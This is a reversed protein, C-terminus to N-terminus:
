TVGDLQRRAHEIARAVEVRSSVGLKQFIHRMHSEVTKGSLFLEAAIERNTKRDTALTAIEFERKTLSALGSDGDSVSGRTEARAGLRRLERRTEDRVRLSGCEDLEREARRLVAIADQRDGAAALARGQLNRSLAVHLQAGIAEAAEVSKAAKAAALGAHGGALLVAARARSALAAPLQLGLQAADEEARLAYAAAAESNGVALEVATLSEWDFCREVPMTRAVEEGALELLIGRGREVDGAEFWAVGLGWGPGGGGNPITGGALRRDVRLSEEFAAIAGDLDGSFYLTWGLEFLARYLEHPSASLRAAELAAECCELGEGLRGTMELAYNKGLMMPILLRGEGTARAIGLGREFRGIGDAYRELYTEAWGLYYLAELRPALEDDTLQDVEARAEELRERAHDIRGAVTEGLCFASAAAAILARDGLARATTLAQHGMEATQQFDLEYLGDVALEIELVAAAATSRDPLDNWARMLRLHAEKHRGLWHETAACLATLEVRSESAGVPLLDIADVLTSRCQDLEGVARLASALAVRVSM